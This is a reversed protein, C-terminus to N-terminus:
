GLGVTTTTKGEGLPTPTIASIVVYKAEPRKSLEDIAELKIKAVASGYPELLHHAIGMESAIEELPKLHAQRAIQLDNPMETPHIM